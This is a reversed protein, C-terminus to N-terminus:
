DDIKIAPGAGKSGILFYETEFLAVFESNLAPYKVLTPKLQFVFCDSTGVFKEKKRSDPIVDLFAGFKDGDATKVLIVCFHYTDVFEEVSNYM